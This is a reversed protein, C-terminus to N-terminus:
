RWICLIVPFAFHDTRSSSRPPAIPIWTQVEAQMTRRGWIAIGVSLVVLALGVGVAVVRRVIPIPWLWRLVFVVVLAVGYLLPPRMVVGPNDAQTAM